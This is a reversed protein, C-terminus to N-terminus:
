MLEPRETRIWKEVRERLAHALEVMEETEQESVVGTREYDGIHRKTRFKDFQDVLDSGAGITHALSQIAHRHPSDGRRTRYGCATLAARAAQLAANYACRFRGDVSLGTAECDALERDAVALLEATEQKSTKHETLWGYGVWEQLSM